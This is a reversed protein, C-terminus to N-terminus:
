VLEFLSLLASSTGDNRRPQSFSSWTPDLGRSLYAMTITTLGVSICCPRLPPLVPKQSPDMTPSQLDLFACAAFQTSDERSFILNIDPDWPIDLKYTISANRKLVKYSCTRQSHLTMVIVHHFMGTVENVTFEQLNSYSIAVFKYNVNFIALQRPTEDYTVPLHLAVPESPDVGLSKFFLSMPKRPLRVESVGLPIVNSHSVFIKLFELSFELYGSFSSVGSSVQHVMTLFELSHSSSFVVVETEQSEQNEEHIYIEDPTLTSFDM